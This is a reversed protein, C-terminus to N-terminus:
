SGDLCDMGRGAVQCSGFSGAAIVRGSGPREVRHGRGYGAGPPQGMCCKRLLVVHTPRILCPMISAIPCVDLTSMKLRPISLDQHSPASPEPSAHNYVALLSPLSMSVTCIILNRTVGVAQTFLSALFGEAWGLFLILPYPQRLKGSHLWNSGSRIVSRTYHQRPRM